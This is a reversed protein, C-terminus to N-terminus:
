SGSGCAAPSSTRITTSAAQAAPAHRGPRPDRRGARRAPAKALGAHLRLPEAVQAGIRMTPNLSTLPDQFVMGMESAACGGYSTARCPGCTAATSASRVASWTGGPPLLGMVSLATMTKGCGSEGVIGLTEGPRVALNVGDVAHVTRADCGRHRHQLNRLELLPPPSGASDRSGEHRRVTSEIPASM